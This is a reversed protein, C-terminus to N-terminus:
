QLSEAMKIKENLVKIMEDCQRYGALRRDKRMTEIRAEALERKHTSLSVCGIGLASGGLLLILGRM